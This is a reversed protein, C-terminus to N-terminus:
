SGVVDKGHLLHSWNMSPKMLIEHLGPHSLLRLRRRRYVYQLVLATGLLLCSGLHLWLASLREPIPLAFEFGLRALLGIRAAAVLLVRMLMAQTTLLLTWMLWPTIRRSRLPPLMIVTLLLTLALLPFIQGHTIAEVIAWVPYALLLSLAYRRAIQLAFSSVMM